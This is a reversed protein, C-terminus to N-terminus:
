RRGRLVHTALSQVHGATLKEAGGPVFAFASLGQVSDIARQAWERCPQDAGLAEFSFAMGLLCLPLAGNVALAEGFAVAAAEPAGEELHRMGRQQADLGTAPPLGLAPFAVRPQPALPQPVPTAPGPFLSAVSRTAPSTAASPAGRQYLGIWRSDVLTLARPLLGEAELPGTVLLGGPRLAAALRNLVAAACEPDFYVLVNRCVILSFQGPELSADDVLNLRHFSVATRLHEPVIAEGAEPVWWELAHHREPGRLSVSSYRGTRGHELAAENLDTGVIHVNGRPWADFLLAALTYAEEGTACGASWVRLPERPDGETVRRVAERLVAADRYFYTEGISALQALLRREPGDSLSAGRVLSGVEFPRGSARAEIRARLEEDKEPTNKWGFWEKVPLM